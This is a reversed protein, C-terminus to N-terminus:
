WLGNAGVVRRAEPQAARERMRTEREVKEKAERELKLRTFERAKEEQERQRETLKECAQGLSACAAEDAAFVLLLQDFTAGRWKEGCNLMLLSTAIELTMASHLLLFDRLVSWATGDIDIAVNAGRAVGAYRVLPPECAPKGDDQQFQRSVKVNSEFYLSTNTIAFSLLSRLQRYTADNARDITALDCPKPFHGFLDKVCRLSQFDLLCLLECGELLATDIFNPLKLLSRFIIRDDENYCIQKCYIKINKKVKPLHLAFQGLEVHGQTQENVNRIFQTKLYLLHIRETTAVMSSLVFPDIVITRWLRSVLTIIPLFSVPFYAFIEKLTDVPLRTLPFDM